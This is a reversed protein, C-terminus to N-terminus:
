HLWLSSAARSCCQESMVMWSFKFYLAIYVSFSRVLRRTPTPSAFTTLPTWLWCTTSFSSVSTRAGFSRRVNTFRSSYRPTRYSLVFIGQCNNRKWRWDSGPARTVSTRRSTPCPWSTEPVMLVHQYSSSYVHSIWNSLSVQHWIRFNRAVSAAARTRLKQPGEVQFSREDSQIAAWYTRHGPFIPRQPKTKPPANVLIKVIFILYSWNSLM